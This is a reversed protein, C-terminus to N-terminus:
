IAVICAGNCHFCRETKGLACLVYIRVRVEDIFGYLTAYEAKCVHLFFLLSSVNKRVLKTSQAKMCVHLKKM